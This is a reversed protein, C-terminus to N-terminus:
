SSDAINGAIRRSRRLFGALGVLGSGFLLLPAPLPVATPHDPYHHHGKFHEIWKLWINRKAKWFSKRFRIWDKLESGALGEGLLFERWWRKTNGGHGQWASSDDDNWEFDFDKRMRKMKNRKMKNRKKNRKMKNKKKRDRDMRRGSDSDDDNKMGGGSQSWYESDGKDSWRSDGSSGSSYKSWNGSSVSIGFGWANGAFILLAAATAAGFWRMKATQM